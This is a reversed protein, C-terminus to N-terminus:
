KKLKPDLADRLGDGLLNFGLVTIVIFVGPFAMLWPANRAYMRGASVLAGWEPTPAPVGFGLFSLAAGIVINLGLITTTQVILPSLGNPLVQTAIIRLDSLGVARAAEVFENGKVTLISARAMRIFPPIGAVGVAIILNQLSMGMVAMIVMGLLLGPISALTDSVRMIISDTMGGYYAAVSGLLTGIIAALAVAGFGIMLSYRTGYLVRLFTNRGTHDGGFPYQWTPPSFRGSMNSANVNTYNMFLSIIAIAFILALIILGVLSSKNHILRHWIEGMQSRKKYKAVVGPSDDTLNGLVIDKNERTVYDRAGDYSVIAAESDDAGEAGDDTTFISGRSRKAAIDADTAATTLTDTSVEAFKPEPAAADLMDDPIGTASPVAAKSGSKRYRFTYQSKIRPDIFAYLLDVILMVVVYLITTMIVCGIVVPSDRFTVGTVLMRGVGPWAYVQEIIASGALSVCISTGITTIIPILANGLAHKRIVKREPVGKARATRLFDSRLVELMSSRTQRVCMAMLSLASCVAPLVLSRIGADFDGAPFWGLVLSFLLMLMLGLWFQPMSMGLLSFSTTAADVVTGAKRAALMGLPIAVAVGLVSSSFVLLLTNPLREIYMGFVPVRNALSMGLDGQVLDAMYLVYRQLMPKDLNYQAKLAAVDEQTMEGSIWADVIDGPALEVLVFVILSVALIIPILTLVRAISYRLM